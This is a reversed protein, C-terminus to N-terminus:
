YCLRPEMWLCEPCKETLKEIGLADRKLNEQKVHKAWGKGSDGVADNYLSKFIYSSNEEEDVEFLAKPRRGKGEADGENDSNIMALAKLAPFKSFAFNEYFKMHAFGSWRGVYQINNTMEEPLKTFNPHYDTHFFLLVDKQFNVKIHTEGSFPNHEGTSSTPVTALTGLYKLYVKRSDRCTFSLSSFKTHGGILFHSWHSELVSIARPPLNDAAFAWILLKLEQPLKLFRAFAQAVEETATEKPEEKPEVKKRYKKGVKWNKKSSVSPSHNSDEKSFKEAVKSLGNKKTFLSNTPDDLIEGTNAISSIALSGPEEETGSPAAPNVSAEGEYASIPSSPVEQGLDSNGDWGDYPLIPEIDDFDWEDNFPSLEIGTNLTFWDTDSPTAPNVSAEGEYLHSSITPGKPVEQCLDFNFDLDGCFQSSEVGFDFNFGETDSPITIDVPEEGTYAHSISSSSPADTSSSLTTTDNFTEGASEFITSSCSIPTTHNDSVREVNKARTARKATRFNRM